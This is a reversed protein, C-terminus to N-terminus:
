TLLEVENNAADLILQLEDVDYDDLTKRAAAIKVNEYRPDRLILRYIRERQRQEECTM